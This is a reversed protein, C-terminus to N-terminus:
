STCGTDNQSHWYDRMRMAHKAVSALKDGSWGHTSKLACWFLIAAAADGDTGRLLFVPEDEPISGDICQVRKDYREDEHKVDGERGTRGEKIEPYFIQVQNRSLAVVQNNWM